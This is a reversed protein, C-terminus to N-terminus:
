EKIEWGDNLYDTLDTEDIELEIEKEFFQRLHIDGFMNIDNNDFDSMKILNKAQMSQGNPLKCGNVPDHFLGIYTKNKDKTHQIDKWPVIDKQLHSYNVWVIDETKDDFFGSKDFLTIKPNKMIEIISGISTKRKLDKKRIEHNGITVVVNDTLKSLNSLLEAALTEAELSTTIFSNLTDGVLVIKTPKIKKLEQYLKDFIDRYKKHEFPENVIHIDALHVIKIKSM